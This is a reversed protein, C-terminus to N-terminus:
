PKHKVKKETYSNEPNKQSSQVKKLLCELDVYIVFPIKLSKEGHLYKVKEHEQPKDVHRYDHNNCM